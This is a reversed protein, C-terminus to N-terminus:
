FIKVYSQKKLQDLWASLGEESKKNFLLTYIQEQVEGLTQQRPPRIETLRLIYYIDDIKVPASIEEAKMKRLEREIEDRLNGEGTDSLKNVPLSYKEAMQAFDMGGKLNNYIEWATGDDDISVSEFVREEPLKFQEINQQYFDTVEAPSVVIKERVKIEIINYMLLQEKIKNEVDAQVLGQKGLAQQFDSDSQYRRRIEDIRAKVRASDIQLGSKKAEQLIIKDEILKDLLDVKMSQIKSELQRGRYEASLQVRMFNLFDNLDKDTIVDSNVVAVIKDQSSFGPNPSAPIAALAATILFLTKPFRM